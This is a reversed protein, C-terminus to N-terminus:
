VTLRQPRGPREQGIADLLRAMAQDPPLCADALGQRVGNQGLYTLGEMDNVVARPLGRNRAVTAVMLHGIDDVDNQIRERAKKSLPEYENGDAKRKGSMILTVAIGAASLAQSYDVHAWLVGIGGTSGSRPVFVRDCASAIVYAAALASESLIARMPKAGRAHYITDALDLCGAVAGGPSDIDFVIAQVAPDALALLLNMRLGDYGTMGEWPELTGLKPVLLGQVAIVAIGQVLPYPRGTREPPTEPVALGYDGVDMHRALALQNAAQTALIEAHRTSLALPVNFLHLALPLPQIPM